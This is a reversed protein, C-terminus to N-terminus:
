GAPGTPGIEGQLGQAGTPGTPGIEGQLGQPGTAVYVYIKQSFYDYNNKRLENYYM